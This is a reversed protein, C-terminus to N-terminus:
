VRSVETMNSAVTEKPDAGAVTIGDINQVSDDISCSSNGDLFGAGCYSYTEGTINLGNPVAKGACTGPHCSFTGPSNFPIPNRPQISVDKNYDELTLLLADYDGTSLPAFKYILLGIFVFISPLITSCVWAKKDRKFNLARKQFLARVHRAFLGQNQLDTKSRTSKDLDTHVAGPGRISSSPLAEHEMCTEGRAVMLFVEDLTTISVGYTVITGKGVEKDLAEFMPQFDSSAGLPLQFTMETGVNSLQHAKPVAGKVIQRLHDDASEAPIGTDVTIKEAAQYEEDAHYEIEDDNKLAANNHAGNKHHTEYKKEITLQYGVGYLKKLFLSSGACRLQGEAM